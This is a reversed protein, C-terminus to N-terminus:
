MYRYREALELVAAVQLATPPTAATEYPAVIAQIAAQLEAEFRKRGPRQLLALLGTAASLDGRRHHLAVLPFVATWVFVLSSHDDPLPAWFALAECGHAEVSAEDGDKWALWARNAAATGLYEPMAARRAVDSSQGAFLACEREQGLRRHAIALYTLNRAQLILDGTKRALELSQHLLVISDDLRNNWLLAFALYFKTAGLLQVNGSREALGVSKEALAVTNDSVLYAELRFHMAVLNQYFQAQQVLTGHEGVRPEIRQALAQMQGAQNVWYYVLMHELHLEIWESWWAASREGAVTDLCDHAQRFHDLVREFNSIAQYSTGLKRLLRARAIADAPALAHMAQGYASRAADAQGTLKLVDGQNELLEVLMKRWEAGAPDDVLPRVQRIARHYLEIAEDNCHCQQTRGAALQLFQAAKGHEDAREYHYALTEAAAGLNAGALAEITEGALRHMLKRDALLLSNYAVDHTVAHKFIYGDCSAEAPRCRLLEREVLRQLSDAVRAPRRVAGLLADLESQEFIRGLVSATQLVYKDLDDLRDIRSAIVGQLTNPVTMHQLTPAAQIAAGEVYLAGDDLLSRLLEETFFPNGEAKELVLHELEPSLNASATLGRVLEASEAPDLPDLHLVHYAGPWQRRWQEHLAWIRESKEARFVLVMAIASTDCLAMIREVLTLSSSDAWHLDEWVLVLPQEHAKAELYRTYATFIQERLSVVNLCSVALEEGEALPVQLMRGLYPMLALGEDGLLAALESRLLGAVVAGDADVPAHLLQLLIHRAPHFGRQHTQALSRGEAWGVWPRLTPRLEAVLRSKGIGAEGCIAIRTGGEQFLRGLETRLTRREHERGVLTSRLAREPAAGARDQDGPLRYVAVPETKGKVRLPAIPEFFFSHRALEFVGSGVYVEGAAAADKLRAAVNVADGLVSYEQRGSSGIGGAVVLGSNIGIHLDLQLGRERNFERLAAFLALAAGCALEAHREHARPAGFLVMIEDGIFKDVTGEYEQVVPVLRDFCANMLARLVEPDHRESLATFGSIDAFMVTVLKREGTLTPLEVSPVAPRGGLQARLAAIAADVAADGLVTRQGELSQIATSIEPFINM